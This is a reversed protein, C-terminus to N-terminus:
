REFSSNTQFQVAKVLLVSSIIGKVLLVAWVLLVNSISSSNLFGRSTEADSVASMTSTLNKSGSFKMASLPRLNYGIKSRSLKMATLPRLIYGFKTNSADRGWCLGDSQVIKIGLISPPAIAIDITTSPIRNIKPCFNACIIRLDIHGNKQQKCISNIDFKYWPILSGIFISISCLWIFATIFNSANGDVFIM